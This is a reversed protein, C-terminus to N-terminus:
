LPFLLVGMALQAALLVARFGMQASSIGQSLLLLSVVATVLLRGTDSSKGLVQRCLVSSPLVNVATCCSGWCRGAGERGHSGDVAKSQSGLASATHHDWVQASNM